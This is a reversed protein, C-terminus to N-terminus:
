KLLDQLVKLADLLLTTPALNKKLIQSTAFAHLSELTFQRVWHIPLQDDNDQDYIQAGM